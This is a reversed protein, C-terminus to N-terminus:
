SRSIPYMQIIHWRGQQDRSLAWLDSEGELGGWSAGTYLYAVDEKENLLVGSFAVVGLGGPVEQNFSEWSRSKWQAIPLTKIGCSLMITSLTERRPGDSVNRIDRLLPNFRYESLKIEVPRAYASDVIVTPTTGQPLGRRNGALLFPSPQSCMMSELVVSVVVFEDGPSAKHGKESRHCGVPVIAFLLVTACVFLPIQGRRTAWM